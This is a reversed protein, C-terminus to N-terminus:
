EEIGCAKKALADAEDNYPDASHAKVKVFSIRLKKAYEGVRAKYNRTLELNTKWEGTAWKEIGAYDYHIYLKKKGKEVATEMAFLAAALEGAVNRHAADPTDSAGSYNRKGENTFSVVGYGFVGTKANFSGDIYVFMEDEKVDDFDVSDSFTAKAELFNQAEELSEFKKFEAGKYGTVQASCKEWTDYIGVNRGVRVAYYKAM